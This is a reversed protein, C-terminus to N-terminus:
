VTNRKLPEKFKKVSMGWFPKEPGSFGYREYFKATKGDTFLHIYTKPPCKKNIFDFLADMIMTGVGKRQYKPLIMMDQVYVFRFGDGVLRGMGIANGKLEAIVCFLSKEAASKLTDLNTYNEWGVATILSKFEDETPLREIIKLNKIM